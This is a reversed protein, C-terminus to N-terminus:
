RRAQVNIRFNRSAAELQERGIFSQEDREGTWRDSTSQQWVRIALALEYREALALAVGFQFRDEPYIPVSLSDLAWRDIYLHRWGAETLPPHSLQSQIDPPLRDVASEHIAIQVRSSRPSYLEWASWHDCYGFSESAPFIIVIGVLLLSFIETM